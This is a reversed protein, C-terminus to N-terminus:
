QGSSGFGKEGRITEDLKDAKVLNPIGYQQFIIQAIRDGIKIEFPQEGCNYLICGINGTYSSDIVGALTLIGFKYALGSRGEIKGFWGKDQQIAIDTKILHFTKPQLTWKEASYLDMGASDNDACTPITAKDSLLLTKFNM